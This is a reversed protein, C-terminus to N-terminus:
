AAREPGRELYRDYFALIRAPDVTDLELIRNWAVVSVPADMEQYSTATLKREGFAGLRAPEYVSTQIEDGRESCEAETACKFLVVVGGHELVHVWSGAPIPLASVGYAARSGYHPGSSPPRNRQPLAAGEPLHSGVGGESRQETGLHPRGLDLGFWGLAAVAAAGVGLGAVRVM